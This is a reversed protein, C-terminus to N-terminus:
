RERKMKTCRGSMASQRKYSLAGKQKLADIQRYRSCGPSTTAVPTTKGNTAETQRERDNAHNTALFRLLRTRFFCQEHKSTTGAYNTGFLEETTQIRKQKLKPWSPQRAYSFRKTTPSVSKYIRGKSGGSSNLLLNCIDGSFNWIIVRVAHRPHGREQSFIDQCFKM